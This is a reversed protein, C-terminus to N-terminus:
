KHCLCFVVSHSHNKIGYQYKEYNRMKARHDNVIFDIGICYSALVFIFFVKFDPFNDVYSLNHRLNLRTIHLLNYDKDFILGVM